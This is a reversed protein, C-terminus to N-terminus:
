QRNRWRRIPGSRQYQVAPAGCSGGACSGRLVQAPPPTLLVRNTGVSKSPRLVPHNQHYVTQGCSVCLTSGSSRFTHSAVETTPTPGGPGYDPVKPLFSAVAAPKDADQEAATADNTRVIFPVPPPLPPLQCLLILTLM